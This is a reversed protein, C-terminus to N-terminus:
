RKNDPRINEIHWELAIRAKASYASPEELGSVIVDHNGMLVPIRRSRVLDVVENPNANYGVVDGLCVIQDPKIEDLARLVTRTAELNGHLDSIIGVLM